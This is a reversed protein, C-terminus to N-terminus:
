LHIEGDWQGVTGDENTWTVRITKLSTRLTMNRMPKSVKKGGAITAFQSAGGYVEHETWQMGDLEIQIDKATGQGVNSIVLWNGGQNQNFRAELDARHRDKVEAAHRREEIALMRHTSWWTLIAIVLGAVGIVSGVIGIVISIDVSM